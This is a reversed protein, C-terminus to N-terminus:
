TPPSGIKQRTGIDDDLVQKEQILEQLSETIELQTDAIGAMTQQAQLAPRTIDEWFIFLSIVIVVLAVVSVIAPLQEMWRIKKRSQAKKYQNVLILRQKTTFPQFGDIAKHKDKIYVYRGIDDPEPLKKPKKGFLKEKWSLLDWAAMQINFQKLYDDYKKRDAKQTVYVAGHIDDFHKPNIHDTTYIYEGEDTYYAEIIMAGKKSIDIAESPAVPILHKRKLLKWWVVGDDDKMVKFKDDIIFKRDAAVVRVRIRHKYKMMQFIWFIIGGILAVGLGIWIIMLVIDSAGFIENLYDVM